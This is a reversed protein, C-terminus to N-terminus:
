ETGLGGPQWGVQYPRDSILQMAAILDAKSIPGVWNEPVPPLYDIPKAEWYEFIDYESASARLTPDGGRYACPGCVIKVTFNNPFLIQGEFGGDGSNHQSFSIQDFTFTAM